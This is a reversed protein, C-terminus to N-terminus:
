RTGWRSPLKEVSSKRVLGLELWCLHRGLLGHRTECKDHLYRVKITHQPWKYCEKVKVKSVGNMHMAHHPTYYSRVVHCVWRQLKWLSIHNHGNLIFIIIGLQDYPGGRWM